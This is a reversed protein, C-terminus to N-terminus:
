GGLRENLEVLCEGSVNLKEIENLGMLMEWRDTIESGPFMDAAKAIHTAFMDKLNSVDNDVICM